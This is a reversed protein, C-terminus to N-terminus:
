GGRITEFGWLLPSTGPKRNLYERQLNWIFMNEVMLLLKPVGFVARIKDPKDAKVMHSRSHLYNWKYPVPEGQKNWFPQRGFKIDHVLQRNIHFIEDYLNHFISRANETEGEAQKQVLRDQWYKSETYPAEASTSITWPYYRLDPFTIPKLLRKPRFM